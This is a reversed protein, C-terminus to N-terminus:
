EEGSTRKWGHGDCSPCIDRDEPACECLEVPLADFYEGCKPRVSEAGCWLREWVNVLEDIQADTIIHWSRTTQPSVVSQLTRNHAELEEIRKGAEDLEENKFRIDENKNALEARLVEITQAVENWASDGTETYTERCLHEIHEPSDLKM